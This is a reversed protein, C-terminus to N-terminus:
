LGLMEGGVVNEDRAATPTSELASRLNLESRAVRDHECVTARMEHRARGYKSEVRKAIRAVAIRVGYLEARGARALRHEDAAEEAAVYPRVVGQERRKRRLHM